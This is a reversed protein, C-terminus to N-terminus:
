APCAPVLEQAVVGTVCERRWRIDAWTLHL